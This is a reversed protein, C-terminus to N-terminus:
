LIRGSNNSALRSAGAFPDRLRRGREQLMTSKGRLVIFSMVRSFTTPFRLLTTNGSSTKSRSSATSSEFPVTRHGVQPHQARFSIQPSCQTQKPSTAPGNSVISRPTGSRLRSPPKLRNERESELAPEVILLIPLILPSGTTLKMMLLVTSNLAKHRGEM